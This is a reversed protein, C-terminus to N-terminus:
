RLQTKRAMEEIAAKEPLNPGSAGLKAAAFATALRAIRELGDGKPRAGELLAAAIGAVMADGAGVTSFVRPAEVLAHLVRDKGAFLAGNEGMSVVVLSLGLRRLELAAELLEEQSTM